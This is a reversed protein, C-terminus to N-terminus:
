TALTDQIAPKEAFQGGRRYRWLYAPAIADLGTPQIDLAELGEADASVVTDTKLMEVQDPTLFPAIGVLTTLQALSGILRALFFPLPILPRSRNTERLVLKLVAEFTMVAPGGLEFTRGAAEVRVVARAIAEAVDGVYVPQFKTHGGGILPLAPAMQALAAFRNLFDDGAGFVISPRIVVADPKANRVAIEAEAKSRAYAAKSDPNAGIASVQVLRDIGGAACAEAILRSGDVHLSQFKRSPTEYLIGVLNVAATAGRLAEAVDADSTINCRVPQIQGVDGLPKLDYALGPRRVAVRVRWGRKALARVVQAGVFGSGGFVTVLGPSFESM